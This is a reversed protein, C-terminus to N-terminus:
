KLKTKEFISELEEKTYREKEPYLALEHELVLEITWKFKIPKAPVGGVVCYPPVDKNVVAGAGIVAGRGTRSLITNFENAYKTTYTLMIM